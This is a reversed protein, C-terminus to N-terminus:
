KRGKLAKIVKSQIGRGQNPLYSMMKKILIKQRKKQSFHKRYGKVIKSVSADERALDRHAADHYERIQYPKTSQATVCEETSYEGLIEMNLSDFFRQGAETFITVASIGNRDERFRMGWFDGIRFDAGSYEQRYSCDFCSRNLLVDDFFTTIFADRGGYSLKRESGINYELVFTGWGTKKSRFNVKQPNQGYKKRVTDCYDYWIKYSPVGHCYMDALVFRDRIGSKKLRADFGAIQCPMAVVFFRAAPDEKALCIADELGQRMDSQIYKSGRFSEVEEKVNTLKGVAQRREDDYYVGVVHMGNDIAYQYATYAVGGSSCKLLQEVDSIRAAYTKGSLLKEGNTKQIRPCVKECLGCEVCLTEDLTASFFGSPNMGYGIANKPCACVCMGCGTCEQEIIHKISM